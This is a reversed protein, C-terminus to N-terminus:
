NLLDKTLKTTCLYALILFIPYFSLSAIHNSSINVSSPCVSLHCVVSPKADSLSWQSNWCCLKLRFGLIQGMESQWMQVLILFICLSQYVILFCLVEHAWPWVIFIRLACDRIVFHDILVYDQTSLTYFHFPINSELDFSCMKETQWSWCVVPAFYRWTGLILPVKTPLLVTSWESTTPADGTPAAGVM